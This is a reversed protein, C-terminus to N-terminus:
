RGTENTAKWPCYCGVSIMPKPEVKQGAILKDLIPEVFSSSSNCVLGDSYPGVYSLRGTADWIAMSPSAPINEMGEIAILPKLKGQLFKTLQGSSNPKQVSYFDVKVNRYMQILYNLHADTENNCPRCEPDWFHVVRIRGTNGALLPPLKLDSDNFVAVHDSYNSLGSAGFYQWLGTAALIVAVSALSVLVIAARKSLASTQIVVEGVLTHGAISANSREM